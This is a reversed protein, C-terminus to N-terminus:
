IPTAGVELFVQGKRGFGGGGRWVAGNSGGARFIGGAGNRVGRRRGTVTSCRCRAPETESQQRKWHGVMPGDASHFAHSM